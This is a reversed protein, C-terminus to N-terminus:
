SHNLWKPRQSTMVSIQNEKKKGASFASQMEWPTSLKHPDPHSHSHRNARTTGRGSINSFLYHSKPLRQDLVPVERLNPLKPSSIYPNFHYKLPNKVSFPIDSFYYMCVCVCLAIQSHLYSFFSLSLSFSFSVSVVFSLSPDLSHSLYLSLSPSLSNSLSLIQVKCQKYDCSPCPFWVSYEIKCCSNRIGVKFLTIATSFTFCKNFLGSCPSYKPNTFTSKRTGM